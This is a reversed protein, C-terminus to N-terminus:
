EEEMEAVQIDRYAKGERIEGGTFRFLRGVIDGECRKFASAIIANVVLLADKDEDLDHIKVVTPRNQQDKGLTQIAEDVYLPGLIRAHLIARHAMSILPITLQQKVKLTRSPEVEPIEAAQKKNM